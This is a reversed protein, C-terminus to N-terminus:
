DEYSPAGEGRRMPRMHRDTDDLNDDMPDSKPAPKKSAPKEEDAKTAVDDDVADEAKDSKTVGDITKPDFASNVMSNLSTGNIGLNSLLGDVLPASTRYRLAAGVLDDALNGSGNGGGSSAGGANGNFGLGSVDMVSLNDIHEIPKGAAELIGAMHGMLTTREQSLLHEDKLINLANNRAEVAKAEALGIAEIGEARLKESDSEAQAEARKAEARATAADREANAEVRVKIADQEAREEASILAIRKTRDAAATAQATKVGEEATIAKARADDAVARAASEEESKRSVMIKRDQEAVELDRQSEIETRKTDRETAIRVAESERQQESRRKAIDAEQEARRNEVERQQDLEAFQVNKQIILEKEKADRNDEAIRVRSDNEIKTTEFRKTEVINAIKARGIADFTNSEKFYELATQDLGTLSVSELELGNKTLDAAVTQQVKQVFNARQEHMEMMDMGAAVSRLGDVLKAEILNSLDEPRLTRSGLTQAAIAVSEADPKVRVYFEAAVNVRLSDKSIMADSNIRSVLLKLTNLNVDIVEHFIPLVLAGGNLVVKEGGMGTRVFAREKTTRRYLKAIVVGIVLLGVLAIGAYILPNM